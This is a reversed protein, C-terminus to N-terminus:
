GGVSSQWTPCVVLQALGRHWVWVMHGQAKQMVDSLPFPHNECILQSTTCLQGARVRKGEQWKRERV